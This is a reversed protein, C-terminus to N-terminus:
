SRFLKEYTVRHPTQTDAGKRRQLHADYWNFNGESHM